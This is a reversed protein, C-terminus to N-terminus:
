SSAFFKGPAPDGLESVVNEVVDSIDGAL